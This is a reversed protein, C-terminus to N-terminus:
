YVVRFTLGGPPTTSADTLCSFTLIDGAVVSTVSVVPQTTANRSSKENAEITIKTSLITTGNKFIDFTCNGDGATDVYAGVATITSAETVEVDGGHAAVTVSINPAIVRYRFGSAGGSIETVNNITSQEITIGGPASLLTGTQEFQLGEKKGFMQSWKSQLFKNPAADFPTSATEPVTVKPDPLNPDILQAM